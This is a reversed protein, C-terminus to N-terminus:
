FRELEEVQGALLGEEAKADTINDSLEAEAVDRSGCRYTLLGGNDAISEVHLSEGSHTRVSDGEKFAVRRVPASGLAYQRHEGSAPFFIEARGFESKLVIGLGLEPETDSVWRQGPVPTIKSM